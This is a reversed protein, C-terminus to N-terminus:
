VISVQVNQQGKDAVNEEPYAFGGSINACWAVNLAVTLLLICTGWM